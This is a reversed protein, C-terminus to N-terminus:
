FSDPEHETTEYHKELGAYTGCDLHCQDCDWSSSGAEQEQGGAVSTTSSDLSANVQPKPPPPPPAKM